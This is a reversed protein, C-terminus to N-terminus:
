IAPHIVTTVMFAMISRGQLAANVAPPAAFEMDAVWMPLMGEPKVGFRGPLGDWKVSHTGIRNIPRDFDFSM